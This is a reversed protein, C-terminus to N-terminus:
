LSANQFEILVSILRIITKASSLQTLDDTIDDWVNVPGSDTTTATSYSASITHHPQVPTM